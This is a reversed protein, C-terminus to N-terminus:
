NPKHTRLAAKPAEIRVEKTETYFRKYESYTITSDYTVHDFLKPYDAGNIRSTRPLWVGEPLRTMELYVAPPREGTTVGATEESGAKAMEADGTTTTPWGVLRTVIRDESDIWITGALQAIYKEKDTFRAEPRPRFSLVLTDRGGVQERRLFKLECTRLFTRIDLSAGGRSFGITNLNIGTRQYTGVPLMGARMEPAPAPQIRADRAIEDEAKELREGARWRERELEEPPLPVGNRSTLLLVGRARAGTTLTPIYVEYINREEKEREKNKRRKAFEMVYTYEILMDGSGKCNAEKVLATLDLTGEITAPTIAECDKTIATSRKGIEVHIDQGIAPLAACLVLLITRGVSKWCDLRM